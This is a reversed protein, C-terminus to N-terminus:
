ARGASQPHEQQCNSWMQEEKGPPSKAMGRPSFECFSDHGRAMDNTEPLKLKRPCTGLWSGLDRKTGGEGRTEKLSRLVLLSTYTSVEALVQPTFQSTTHGSHKLRTSRQPEPSTNSASPRLCAAPLRTRLLTNQLRANPGSSGAQTLVCLGHLGLANERATRRSNVPSDRKNAPTPTPAARHHGPCAASCSAPLTLFSWTIYIEKSMLTPWQLLKGSRTESREKRLLPTNKSGATGPGVRAQHQHSYNLCVYSHKFSPAPCQAQSRM